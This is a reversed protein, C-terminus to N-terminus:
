RIYLHDNECLYDVLTQKIGELSQDVIIIRYTGKETYETLTDVSREIFDTTIIPYIFAVKSMARGIAESAAVPTREEPQPPAHEVVEGRSRDEVGQLVKGKGEEVTNRVGYAFRGVYRALQGIREPGFVILL